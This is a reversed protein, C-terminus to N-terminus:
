LWNLLYFQDNVALYRGGSEIMCFNYSSSFLFYRMLMNYRFLKVIIKRYKLNISFNNKLYFSM